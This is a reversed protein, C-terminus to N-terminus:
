TRTVSDRQSNEAVDLEGAARQRRVLTIFITMIEIASRRGDRPAASRYMLHHRSTHHRAATSIPQGYIGPLRLIRASVAVM